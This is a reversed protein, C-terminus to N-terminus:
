RSAAYLQVALFAVVSALCLLHDRCISRALESQKEVGDTRTGLRIANPVVRVAALGIPGGALVLSAFAPWRPGDGGFAQLLLTVIAILMVVAVLHTMPRATTTVRRYYEAISSLVDEPLERAARPYRLVQVDFMLDWWLVALLFGGCAAVILSSM